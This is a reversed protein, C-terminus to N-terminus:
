GLAFLDTNLLTDAAANNFFQLRADLEQQATGFLHTGKTCEMSVCMAKFAPIGGTISDDTNWNEVLKERDDSKEGYDCLTHLAVDGGCRNVFITDGAIGM